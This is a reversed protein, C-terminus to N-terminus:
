QVNKPNKAPSVVGHLTVATLSAVTQFCRSAPQTRFLRSPHSGRLPTPLAPLAAAAVRHQLDAGGRGPAPLEVAILHPVGALGPGWVRSGASRAASTTCPTDAHTTRVTSWQVPKVDIRLSHPDTPRSSHYKWCLIVAVPPAPRPVFWNPAWRVLLHTQPFRSRGSLFHAGGTPRSGVRAALSTM